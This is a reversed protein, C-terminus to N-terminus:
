REGVIEIGLSRATDMAEKKSRFWPQMLDQGNEGVIRWATVFICRQMLLQEMRDRM